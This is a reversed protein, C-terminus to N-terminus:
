PNYGLEKAKAFDAEAKSNDGKQQYALGRKHHVTANNPYMQIVRNYDAIAFDYSKMKM